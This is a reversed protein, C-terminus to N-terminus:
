LGLCQTGKEGDGVVGLALTSTNSGEEVRSETSSPDFVEVTVRHVFKSEGRVEERCSGHVPFV